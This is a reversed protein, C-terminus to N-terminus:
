EPEIPDPRLDNRPTGQYWGASSWPWDVDREVLGRRVPNAHPDDIMAKLTRPETINRDYGGGSQWFLRETRGGRRRTLRPLWHPAHAELYPFARRGVPQKIGQLIGAVGAGGVRPRVIMHAHEPMFVFAWLDFGHRRRAQEISEALWRCTREAALFRYRRYCTSTLEHAHGPEDFSRRRLIRQRHDM